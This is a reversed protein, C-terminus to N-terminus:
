FFIYLFIDIVENVEKKFNDNVNRNERFDNNSFNSNSALSNTKQLFGSVATNYTIQTYNFSYLNYIRFYKQNFSM